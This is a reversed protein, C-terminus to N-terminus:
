KAGRTRRKGRANSGGRVTAGRGKGPQGGRFSSNGPMARKGDHPNYQGEDSPRYNDRIPAKPLYRDNENFGARFDGYRPPPSFTRERGYRVSDQLGIGDGFTPRTQRPFKLARQSLPGKSPEQGNRLNQAFQIHHSNSGRQTQISSLKVSPRIFGSEDDSDDLTIPDDAKGKISFGKRPLNPLSYDTGASIARDSSSPDLYKQLNLKSWTVGGSLIKGSHLGCEPGYHNSAGCVYCYVPIDRVTRIEEPKPDFSRWILHCANELHDQSQCLDCGGAESRSLFLKEPCETTQHGRVRCKGCRQNKPCTLVSHNGDCLNCTLAPCDYTKHGSKACALCSPRAVSVAVDPFYRQLLEIELDNLTVDFTEDTTSSMEGEERELEPSALPMFEQGDRNKAETDSWSPAEIAGGAPQRSVVAAGIESDNLAAGTEGQLPSPIESQVKAPEKSEGVQLEEKAAQKAKALASSCLHNASKTASTARAEDLAEMRLHGYYLGIYANFARKIHKVMLSELRSANTALFHPVFVAIKFDQLSIPQSDQLIESLDFTGQGNEYVRKTGSPLARPLQTDVPSRPELTLSPTNGKIPRVGSTDPDLAQIKKKRARKGKPRTNDTDDVDPEAAPNTHVVEKLNSSSGSNFPSQTAHAIVNEQPNVGVNARSTNNEKDNHVPASARTLVPGRSGFSTRLGSQLRVGKNWTLLPPTAITQQETSPIQPMETPPLHALSESSMNIIIEDAVHESGAAAHDQKARKHSRQVSDESDSSADQPPAFEALERKRGVESTRSDEM